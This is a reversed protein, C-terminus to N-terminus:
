PAVLEFSTKSLQKRRQRFSIFASSVAGLAAGASTTYHVTAAGAVMHDALAAVPAPDPRGAIIAADALSPIFEGWRHGTAANKFEILVGQEVRSSAAPTGVGAPVSTLSISTAVIEGDILAGVLAALADVEAQLATATATGDVTAYFLASSRTGLGDVIALSITANPM